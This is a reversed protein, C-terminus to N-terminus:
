EAGLVVEVARDLFADVPAEAYGASGSRRRFTVSRLEQATLPAGKDFYAILRHCIDDVDAPEYGPQRGHPPAFREGDPRTLRGYLTRAQEALRDMWAQQGHEAVFDARARAVFAAELRDLAADVASTVYGRRVMDFAVQRVDRGSLASAPGKEYVARAHEFFDDVEDPDYGSRLGSATRFMTDIV